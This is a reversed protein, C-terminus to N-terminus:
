SFREYLVQALTAAATDLAVDSVTGTRTPIMSQHWEDLAAISLALSVAAISWTLKWGNRAGRVARFDLAGLLGYALVHVAKRFLFHAPEFAPSAPPIIWELIQASVGSSGANGSM